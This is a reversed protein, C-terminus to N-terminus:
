SLYKFQWAEFDIQGVAVAGGSFDAFVGAYRSEPTSGAIRSWWAQGGMNRDQALQNKLAAIDTQMLAVPDTDAEIKRALLIRYQHQIHKSRNGGGADDNEYVHWIVLAPLKNEGAPEVVFRPKGNAVFGSAGLTVPPTALGIRANQATTFTGSVASALTVTDNSTISAVTAVEAATDDDELECTDAAEFIANSGVTVTASAACNATLLVKGQCLLRIAESLDSVGYINQTAM